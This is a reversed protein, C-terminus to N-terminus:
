IEGKLVDESDAFGKTTPDTLVNWVSILVAVVVVPNKIAEFLLNGLAPWSTMDRWLSGFYTLIPMIFATALQFWFSPNKFRIKLNVGLFNQLSMANIRENTYVLYLLKYTREGGFAGRGLPRPNFAKRRRYSLM